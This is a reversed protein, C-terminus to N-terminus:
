SGRRRGSEGGAARPYSLPRSRCPVPIRGSRGLAPAPPPPPRHPRTAPPLSSAPIIRRTRPEPGDRDGVDGAPSEPSRSSATSRARGASSPTGTRCSGSRGDGARGPRRISPRPPPSGRAHARRATVPESPRRPSGVQRCPSNGPTTHAPVGFGQRTEGRFGGEPRKRRKRGGEPGAPRLTGTHATRHDSTRILAGARSPCARVRVRVGSDFRSPPLPEPEGARRRTCCSGAAVGANLSEAGGPM